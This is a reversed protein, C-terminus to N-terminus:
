LWSLSRSLRMLCFSVWRCTPQWIRACRLLTVDGCKRDNLIALFCTRGGLSWVHILYVANGYEVQDPLAPQSSQSSVQLELQQIRAAASRRGLAAEALARQVESM